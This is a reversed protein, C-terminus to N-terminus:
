NIAEAILEDILKRLTDKKELHSLNNNEVIPKATEEYKEVLDYSVRLNGIPQYGTAIAVDDFDYVDCAWGSSRTVYAAPKEESLLHWLNCYGIPIVYQFGALIEKRNSKFKMIVRGKYKIGASNTAGSQNQIM